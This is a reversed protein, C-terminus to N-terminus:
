KIVFAKLLNVALQTKNRCNFKKTLKFVRNEITRQSLSIMEAIQRYTHGESVLQMIIVNIKTIKPKSKNILSAELLKQLVISREGIPLNLILMEIEKESLDSRKGLKKKQNLNLFALSLHKSPETFPRIIVTTGMENKKVLGM